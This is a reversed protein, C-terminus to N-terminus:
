TISFRASKAKTLEVAADTVAQVLPELDLQSAILAGTKNLVALALEHEKRATIDQVVGVMGSISGDPLHSARGRAHVWVIAGTGPRKIRYDTAYDIKGAVAKEVALRTEEREDEHILERMKAWTMNPGPPIGFILAARDSFTVLDTEADWSWDGLQAAALALRLREATDREIFTPDSM